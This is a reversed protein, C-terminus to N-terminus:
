GYANTGVKSRKHDIVHERGGSLILLAGCAACTPSYAGPPVRFTPALSPAGLRSTGCRTARDLQRARQSHVYRVPQAHRKAQKARAEDRRARAAAPCAPTAPPASRTTPGPAQAEECGGVRHPHTPAAAARVGRSTPGRRGQASANGAGRAGQSGPHGGGGNIRGGDTCSSGDRQRRTPLQQWRGKKRRTGREGGQEEGDRWSRRWQGHRQLRAATAM